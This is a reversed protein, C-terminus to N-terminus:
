RTQSATLLMSINQGHEAMSPSIRVKDWGHNPISQLQSIMELSTHADASNQVDAAALLYQELECCSSSEALSM